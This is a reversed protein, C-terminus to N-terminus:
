FLVISAVGTLTIATGILTKANINELQNLFIRAFLLSFLPSTLLIPAITVVTGRSLATYNLMFGLSTILGSTAFLKTSKNKIDPLKFKKSVFGFVLMVMLATLATVAAVILPYDAITLGYKRIPISVGALFSACVAFLMHRKRLKGTKSIAITGTVILFTGAIIPVTLKEGLFIVALLTAYLPTTANIHATRAVGIKSISEFRLLRTLGPALFGAIVFVIVATSLLSSLPIILLLVAWLVLVNVCLSILVGSYANSRELGKKIFIGSAAFCIAAGIAMLEPLMTVEM